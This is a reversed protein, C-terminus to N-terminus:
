QEMPTRGYGRITWIVGPDRRKGRRWYAWKREGLGGHKTFYDALNDAGKRWFIRFQDQDVRDQLWYFRM